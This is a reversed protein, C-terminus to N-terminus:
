RHTKQLLKDLQDEFANLSRYVNIVSDHMLMGAARLAPTPKYFTDHEVEWFNGILMPVIQYEAYINTQIDPKGYYKKASTLEEDSEFPDETFFGIDSNNLNDNVVSVLRRPFVLIRVGVIDKLECLSYKEPTKESFDEHKVRLKNYASEFGKIRSRIDVREFPELREVTAILAYRIRTELSYAIKSMRPLLRFYEERLSDEVPRNM